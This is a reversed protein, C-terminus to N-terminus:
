RTYPLFVVGLPRWKDPASNDAWIPCLEMKALYHNNFVDFCRYMEKHEVGGPGSEFTMAIPSDLSDLAACFKPRDEVHELVSICTVWPFRQAKPAFEELTENLIPDVIECHIGFRKLLTPFFQTSGSGVDLVRQPVNPMQLITWHYEWFRQSGKGGNGDLGDWESPTRSEGFARWLEGLLERNVAEYINVQNDM